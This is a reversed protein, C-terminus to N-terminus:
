AARIKTKAYPEVILFKDARNQFHQLSEEFIGSKTTYMRQRRTGGCTTRANPFYCRLTTIYM